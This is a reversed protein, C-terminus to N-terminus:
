QKKYFKMNFVYKDNDSTGPEDFVEVLKLAAYIKISDPLSGLRTLVIDGVTINNLQDSPVGSNFANILSQDTANAYDFGPFRVFKGGAPSKWSRSLTNATPSPQNDEIDRFTSDVSGIAPVKNEVDFAYEPFVTSNKSYFTHGSTETLVVAGAIVNLKKVAQTVEGDADHVEFTLTVAYPGTSHAVFYEYDFNFTSLSGLLSDLITTTSANNLKSKIVFRVLKSNDSTSRTKFQVVDGSVVDLILSYPEILLVPKTNEKKCSSLFVLSSCLILAVSKFLASKSM